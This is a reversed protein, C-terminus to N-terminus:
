TLCWCASAPKSLAALLHRYQYSWGAGGHLPLWSRPAQRPGEDLYHLRLRRTGAPRQCPAGGLSLPCTPLRARANRLADDRLTPSWGGRARHRRESFLEALAGRVGRGARRGGVQTQHNLLPEAFLEVVRVRRARRRTLPAMVWRPLRPRAAHRRRMRAPSLTVYLTCGDLRYNGLQQAAVRLAAAHQPPRQGPCYRPM